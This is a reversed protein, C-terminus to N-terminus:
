SPYAAYGKAETVNGDDGPDTFLVCGIMGHEQANKVKIGRFNGGYKALAIKGKLQVGLEVLRKFDDLTARRKLLNIISRRACAYGREYFKGSTSM